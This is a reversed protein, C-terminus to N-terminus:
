RVIGRRHRIDWIGSGNPLLSQCYLHAGVIQNFVGRAWVLKIPAGPTGSVLM